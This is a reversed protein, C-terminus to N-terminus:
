LVAVNFAGGLTESFKSTFAQKAWSEGSPKQFCNQLNHINYSSDFHWKKYNCECSVSFHLFLLSIQKLSNPFIKQRILFMFPSTGEGLILKLPIQPRFTKDDEFIM